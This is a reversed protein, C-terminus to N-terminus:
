PSYISAQQASAAETRNSHELFLLAPFFLVFLYLAMFFLCFTLESSVLKDNAALKLENESSFYVKVHQLDVKPWFPLGARM